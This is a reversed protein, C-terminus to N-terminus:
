ISVSLNDVYAKAVSVYTLFVNIDRSQGADFAPDRELLIELSRSNNIPCGSIALSSNREFSVALVSRNVSYALPTISTEQFPMKMKDFASMTMLYAEMGRISGSTTATQNIVAQNPYYQSGLRMQFTKTAFQESLFSDVQFNQVNTSGQSIVFAQTAQSVAKSCQINATTSGSPFTSSYNYVRPYTFELGSQSSELNLLKSTEDSLNVTDLVLAIDYLEVRSTAEQLYGSPDFFSKAVSELSLEIRLGSAIQPPLLQGKLPCFFSALEKLPICIEPTYTNAGNFVINSSSNSFFSSGITQTWNTTKTYAIRSSNYLNCNEVRDLEVGSRSRIRYEHILNLASGVGFTPCNVDLVAAKVNYAKLKFRLYSNSSDIFSNGTNLDFIVTSNRNLDYAQRQPFQNVFTRGTALSLSRPMSYILNNITLDMDNEEYKTDSTEVSQQPERYM